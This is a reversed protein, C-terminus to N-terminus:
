PRKKSDEALLQEIPNNKDTFGLPLTTRQEGGQCCPGRDTQLSQNAPAHM